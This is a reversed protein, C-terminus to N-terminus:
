QGKELIRYCKPTTVSLLSMLCKMATSARISLRELKLLIQQVLMVTFSSFSSITLFSVIDLAGHILYIVLSPSRGAAESVKELQEGVTLELPIDTSLYRQLSLSM